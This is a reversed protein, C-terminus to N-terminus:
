QWTLKIFCIEHSDKKETRFEARPDKGKNLEVVREMTGAQIERFLDWSPVDEVPFFSVETFHDGSKELKIEIEDLYRRAILTYVQLGEAPSNKSLLQKSADDFILDVRSRGHLRVLSYDKKSRMEFIGRGIRAMTAAPYWSLPIVMERIIHWDAETLYKKWDLEPSDRVIKVYDKLFNGKIRM